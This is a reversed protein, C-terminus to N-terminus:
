GPASKKVHLLKNCIKKALLWVEGRKLYRMSTVMYSPPKEVLKLRSHKVVFAQETWEKIHSGEALKRFVVTRPSFEAELEWEPEALLYQKLVEGTWLWTDDVVLLGDVKLKEAAYYFDIFPAPFGHRGDILVLDLLDCELRPLVKESVDQCFTIQQTSIHNGVCYEKIRQIEQAAPNICIHHSGSLAFMVTSLGGGTELTKASGDIRQEIFRLVPEPLGMSYFTGHDDVHPTPPNLIVDSLNM